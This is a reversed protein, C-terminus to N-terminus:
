AFTWKFMNSIQAKYYEEKSQSDELKNLIILYRDFDKAIKINHTHRQTDSYNAWYKNDLRKIDFFKNLDTKYYAKAAMLACTKLYYQEVLSKTAIHYLGWNGNNIKKVLYDKYVSSGDPLVTVPLKQSLEAQFHEALDKILKPKNSKKYPKKM